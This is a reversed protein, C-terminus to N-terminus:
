MFHLGRFKHEKECFLYKEGLTDKRERWRISQCSFWNCSDKNKEGNLDDFWYLLNEKKIFCAEQIELSELPNINISMKVIGELMFELGPTKNSTREFIIHAVTKNVMVMSLDTDVYTGSKFSIEKICSDHFNDFLLMVKKIDDNTNINEWEM